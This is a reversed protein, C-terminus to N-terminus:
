RIGPTLGHTEIYIDKPTKVAIRAFNVEDFGSSLQKIIFEKLKGSNVIFLITSHENSHLMDKAALIMTSTKGCGPLGHLNIHSSSSKGDLIIGLASIQQNDLYIIKNNFFRAKKSVKIRNPKSKKDPDEKKGSSKEIFEQFAKEDVENLEKIKKYGHDGSFSLLLGLREKTTFCM